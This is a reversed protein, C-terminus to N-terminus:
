TFNSNVSVVSRISPTGLWAGKRYGLKKAPRLRYEVSARCAHNCSNEAAIKKVEGQDIESLTLWKKLRLIYKKDKSTAKKNEFGFYVLHEIVKDAAFLEVNKNGRISNEVFVLDGKNLSLKNEGATDHKDGIFIHGTTVGIPWNLEEFVDAFKESYRVYKALSSSTEAVTKGLLRALQVINLEHEKAYKISKQEPSMKSITTEQKAISM